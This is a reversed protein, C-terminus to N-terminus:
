TFSFLGNQQSCPFQETVKGGITSFLRWHKVRPVIGVSRILAKDVQNGALAIIGIVHM